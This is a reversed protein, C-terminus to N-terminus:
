WSYKNKAVKSGGTLQDITMSQIMREFKVDKRLQNVFDNYDLVKGIPININYNVEGVSGGSAGNPLRTKYYQSLSSSGNNGRFLSALPSTGKAVDQMANKLAIFNSTDSSNLVIEPKEPTGDLWAIGTYDNLGGTAFKSYHYKSLSKGHYKKYLNGSHGNADIYNQVATAGSTGFKEKLRKVRTSGDGWGSKSGGELWIAAAIGKKNDDSLSKTSSSKGKSKSSSAHAAPAPQPAPSPAPAPAPAPVPTSAQTATAQNITAAARNNSAAIMADMRNAIGNLTNNVTTFASTFGDGYKTIVSSIALNGNSWISQMSESLTYGVNDAQNNITEAISSSNQNIMDIMDSILADLNDLRDNLTEQYEKYLDDLLKKQDTIYREYQTDELEKNADSLNSKLKQVTAKTEESNDGSYASIQKQLSNIQSVQKDINNKYDYLDKETDLADTYKDILDKLADLEKQIGDRVLEKIAQKEEEAGNIADRQSKVLEEYRDILKKNNPDNAIDRNIAKIEEAYKDAQAMYVNYNQGHLGMTAMATDNMQGKDTFLESNSMLKILFDSENTINEIQKQIWDFRDWKLQRIENNFKVLATQSEQISEKVGNISSQMKYWAESGQAIAGSNVADSMRAILDTLENQRLAINDKEVNSLAEYYKTSAIYGREELDDLGNNYTNTLHEMMSLRNDYDDSVNNFNDEYLKSMNERLKIIADNAALAKEYWKQYEQIKDATDKDYEKINITGNQVKKKLDSSLKVSDAQKMYRNYAQQQTSVEGRMQSLESNTAGIRDALTHYSSEAIAAFNSIAREIRNIAIEIWDIIQKDNKDKTSKSKKKSSSRKKSSSYRKSSSSSSSGSSSGSPNWNRKPVTIGGSVPHLSALATGSALAHARGAVYGNALLDETQLHNFVISGAPIDRFEAGNDGVTYWMGTRPNVVIERGLEGVLTKGGPATGWNGSAMSKGSNATGYAHATGNLSFPGGLGGIGIYRVARTIDPLSTPLATIDPKYYVNRIVREFSTPLAKTNPSYNVECKKSKPKYGDVAKHNVKAKVVLDDVTIENISKSISEVSTSDISLKTKVDPPLEKIQDAIGKLKSEADGTDVGVAKQQQIQEQLTQFQQLLSIANGLDGDVQSTDIKMVDPQCLIQKQAICYQIVANAQEVESPDVNPRAKIQNMEEITGDLTKIQEDTSDIDSVDIKIKLDKNEDISKLAEASETARVALDGFTQIGGEAWSFEGGKLQLEDFFAQIMGGSMHFGKAFDEMCKNGAIEFSKNGSEDETMTMLGKEVSDELFKDINLGKVKGSKDDFTMYQKVSDMYNQVAEADKPDVSDPVVLELAAKYKKSGYDGSSDSASEDPNLVDFIQQAASEADKAMDGYDSSSQANLWNQYAGTAEQLASSLLDYQNCTDAIASNEELLSSITDNIRDTAYQNRTGSEELADRLRQIQQANELYKTQALAKNANNTAIQEDAKAKAIERVKEANLQMSGNVRELASRYDALENSNFDAPSISVGGQQKSLADKVKSLGDIFSQSDEKAKTFPDDEVLGILANRYALLQSVSEATDMRGLEDAFLKQLGTAKQTVEGDENVVQEHGVLAEIQKEIAGTLGASDNISETALKPFDKILSAFDDQKFESNKIKDRADKLESLKSKYEDVKTSFSKTEGDDKEALLGRFSIETEDKDKDAEDKAAKKADSKYKRVDEQLDGLSSYKAKAVLNIAIEVDGASMKDIRDSLDKNVNKGTTRDNGTLSKYLSDKQSKLSSIKEKQQLLQAELVKYSDNKSLLADIVGSATAGASTDFDASAELTDIMKGRLAVFDQINKPVDNSAIAQNVIDKAVLDNQANIKEVVPEVKSAYQQYSDSVQKYLKSDTGWTERIDNMANQLYTYNKYMEDWSMNDDWPMGNDSNPLNLKGSSWGESKSGEIDVSYGKKGLWKYIDTEDIDNGSKDHAKGTSSIQTGGMSKFNHTAEAIAAETANTAKSIDTSLQEHTLSAIADKLSGYKVVLDDVSEGTAGLASIVSSQADALAETASASTDASNAQTLYANSLNYINNGHEVAATGAEISAQRAEKAKNVLHSIGTIVGQIALAIGFSLATKLAVSAVQLGITTAKARFLSSIYGGMTAEAGNFSSLYNGLSSNSQTISQVFDSQSVGCNRAQQNYENLLTRVNALSKNQAVLSIESMRSNNVFEGINVSTGKINTAFDKATKSAKSMTSDFADGKLVGSSIAAQFNQLSSIDTKLKDTYDENFKLGNDTQFIGSLWQLTSGKTASLAGINKLDKFGKLAGLGAALTPIVGVKGSLKTLASVLSLLGSGLDVVGGTLKSSILSASLEQFQASLAGLKAKTTDMYIENAKTAAGASNMADAYAGTADKWNGIISSIISLQRTGGLIESIRSRTTDSLQGWVNSIEGFMQYISKYEGKAANAMIDVGGTGNVNTLAKIESRYKSLGKACDESSEGMEQLETTAGRMRASVTKMATGVADANQISANAAAFLAASEEFSTGSAHLAAGGREFANMLEEASIAYKQGVETLVDSVHEADSVQLDYGKMIATLGTTASKVDTNAVNSLINAYKSLETSDNLKYGLRSFTEISKSVDTINKGLDKAQESANSFFQTMQADSAGTVIKIQAMASELDISASVMKKVGNVATMMMRGVSLWQTLRGAVSKLQDGISKGADGNIKINSISDKISGSSKKVADSFESYSVKGADYQQKLSKLSNVSSSINAYDDKSKMSSKAATYKQIAITGQRVASEYTKLTAAEEAKERASQKSLRDADKTVANQAAVADKVKTTTAGLQTGVDRLGNRFSDFDHNNSYAQELAEVQRRHAELESSIGTDTIGKGSLVREQDSIKSQMKGAEERVKSADDQAKKIAEASATAKAAAENQAVVFDKLKTTTAELQVGISSISANFESANGNTAFADGAAKVQDHLNKLESSINSNSYGSKTLAREQDSIKSQMESANKYAKSAEIRAKALAKENAIASKIAKQVQGYGNGTKVSLDINGNVSKLSNKINQIQSQVKSISAPDIEVKIKASGSTAKQLAAEIQSIFQSTDIQPEAGVTLTIDNAM